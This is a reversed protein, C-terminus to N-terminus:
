QFNKFGKHTTFRLLMDLVWQPQDGPAMHGLFNFYLFVRKICVILKRNM